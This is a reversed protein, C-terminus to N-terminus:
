LGLRSWWFRRDAAQILADPMAAAFDAGLGDGHRLGLRRQVWNKRPTMVPLKVNEGFKERCITRIEGLGDVLGLDLAQRGTWFEGSFLTDEPAKLRDGRRSTVWGTFQDHIDKQLAKLRKIDEQNEPQFPDLQSKAEGATYVRREIGAKELLAPFGFGASIVGISGVVTADAAYIEDAACALWYGGSAAADELFAIVKRDKEAAMLRIRRAILDSQVPSGGPSNVILAVAAAKDDEFAKDIPEALDALTLGGQRFRGADGVVGTLRIVPVVPAMEMRDALKKGIFPIKRVFPHPKAAKGKGGSASSGGAAQNQESM